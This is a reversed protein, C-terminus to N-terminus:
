IISEPLIFRNKGQGAGIQMKPTVSFLYYLSSTFAQLCVPDFSDGENSSLRVYCDTYTLFRRLATIIHM